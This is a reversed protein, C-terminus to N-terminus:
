DRNLQYAIRESGDGITIIGCYHFGYRELAQRMPRNDKYTDIRLHSCRTLCWDCCAAVLGGATGNSAIRHVVGYPADDLWAGQIEAYTPEVDKGQFFAFVGALRGESWVTYCHGTEIDELVMEREPYGNIWQDMNGNKRMFQRGLDYLVMLQDLDGAQAKKIEM